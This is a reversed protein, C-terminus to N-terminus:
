RTSETNPLLFDFKLIKFYRNMIRM